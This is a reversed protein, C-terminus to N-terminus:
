KSFVVVIAHSSSKLLVFIACTIMWESLNKCKFFTGYLLLTKISQQTSFEICFLM